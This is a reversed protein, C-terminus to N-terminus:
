RAPARTADRVPGPGRPAADGGGDGRLVQLAVHEHRAEDHPWAVKLVQRRQQADLVPVVVATVGHVAPGDVVLQWEELLERLVGPLRRLWSGWTAHPNDVALLGPPLGIVPSSSVVGDQSVM